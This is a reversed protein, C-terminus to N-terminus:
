PFFDVKSFDTSLIKGWFFFFNDTFPFIVIGVVDWFCQYTSNLPCFLKLFFAGFIILFQVGYWDKAWAQRRLFVKFYRCSPLLSPHSLLPFSLNYCFPLWPLLRQTPLPQQTPMCHINAKPKTPEFQETFITLFTTKTFITLPNQRHAPYKNKNM